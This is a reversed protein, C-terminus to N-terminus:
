EQLEADLLQELEAERYDKTAGPADDFLFGSAVVTMGAQDNYLSIPEGAYAVHALDVVHRSDSVPVSFYVIYVGNLVCMSHGAVTGTNTASVCKVVARKGAPVTYAVSAGTISSKAFTVSYIPWSM